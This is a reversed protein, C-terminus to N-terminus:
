LVGDPLPGEIKELDNIHIYRVGGDRMDWRWGDNTMLAHFTTYDPTECGFLKLQDVDDPMMRCSVMLESSKLDWHSPWVRIGRYLVEPYFVIRDLSAHSQVYISEKWIHFLESNHVPQIPTSLNCESLHPAFAALFWEGDRNALVSTM